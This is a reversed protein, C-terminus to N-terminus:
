LCALLSDTETFLGPSMSPLCLGSAKALRLLLYQSVVLDLCSQRDADPHEHLTYSISISYTWSVEQTDHNPESPYPHMIFCTGYRTM